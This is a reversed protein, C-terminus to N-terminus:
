LGSTQIKSSCCDDQSKGAQHNFVANTSCYGQSQVTKGSEFFPGGQTLNQLFGATREKKPIRKMRESQPFKEMWGSVYRQLCFTISPAPPIRVTSVTMSQSPPFHRGGAQPQPLRVAHFPLKRRDAGQLLEIPPAYRGLRSEVPSSHTM